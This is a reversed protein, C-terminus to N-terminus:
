IKIIRYKKTLINLGAFLFISQVALYVFFPNKSQDFLNCLYPIKKLWLLLGLIIEISIFLLNKQIKNKRKLKSIMNEKEGVEEKKEDLEETIIDINKTKSKLKTKLETVDSLINKKESEFSRTLFLNIDRDKKGSIRLKNVKKAIKIIKEKQLESFKEEVDLMRSLDEPQFTEKEPILDERLIKAFLPAFNVPNIDVGANDIALMNILVNISIAVPTEDRITNEVTYQKLTNDKTLIWIKEGEKRLFKVGSILGADHELAKRKKDRGWRSKYIKNMGKIMSENLSGVGIITNLKLDDVIELNLDKAFVETINFIEQFFTEFDEKECCKRMLATKIFPDDSEQIVDKDFKSIIKLIEDSKYNMAIEYEEKSINFYCCKISLKFFVKEMSRLSKSLKGGELQLIMLINTDLIFTSNKFLDITLQDVSINTTILKSAFLSTAYDWLLLSEDNGNSTIFEKYQNKLWETDSSEITHKEFSKDNVIDKLKIYKRKREGVNSIEIIWEDFYKNFFEITIEDFWKKVSRTNSDTKAFYKEFIRKFRADRNQYAEFLIGKFKSNLYYKSKGRSIKIKNEELLQSIVDNFANDSIQTELIMELNIKIENKSIMKNKFIIKVIMQSLARIFLYKSTSDLKFYVNSLTNDM